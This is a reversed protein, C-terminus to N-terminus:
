PAAPAPMYTLGNPSNGVPITAAVKQGAIDIVTVNNDNTNTIYLKGSPTVATGHSGQGAPIRTILKRSAADILWVEAAGTNAVWLNDSSGDASPVISMMAPQKGSKIYGTTKNTTLDVISISAGLFNSVYATKSDPSIVVEFPDQGTPITAVVKVESGLSLVSVTNDVTNTVVVYKGDPTVRVGHPTKGVPVTQLLKRNPVDVVALADTTGLSVYVRTGDPSFNLDDNPAGVDVSAVEKLSVPDFVQLRNEGYLTVWFEKGDPTGLVHHPQSGTAVTGYATDTAVDILSVTNSAQNATLIRGQPTSQTQVSVQAATPEHTEDGCAALVPAALLLLVSTLIIARLKNM